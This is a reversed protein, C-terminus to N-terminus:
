KLALQCSSYCVIVDYTPLLLEQYVVNKAAGTEDAKGILKMCANRHGGRSVSCYLQGHLFVNTRLDLVVKELTLGKCSNFTSTYALKLPFQRRQITWPCNRPQFEFTIRPIYFTQQQSFTDILGFIIVRKHLREVLLRHNKGLGENINLNRMITSVCGETLSLKHAPMSSEQQLSLFDMTAAPNDAPVPTEDEKITDFSYYTVTPRQYPLTSIHVYHTGKENLLRELMFKTFMDVYFNLPSLFCNPVCEEPAALTKPPYLFHITHEINDFDPIMDLCIETEDRILSGQGTVDVWRAYEPDSSNRLQQYLCLISFSLWVPSSVISAEITQTKWAFCVIPATPHFDGIGLFIKGGFPKDKGTIAQSLGNVCELASRHAM